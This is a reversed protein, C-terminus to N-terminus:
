TAEPTIPATALVPQPLQTAEGLALRRYLRALPGPAWWNVNGLLRMTAPVVLARVLTADIAVAIAMGIGIAKIIVVEALGFASFVGVMIAAAGTILRGSRELGEAVALTNDRGRLYEEQIRSLLLVEYDMSLGFVTCFMIVPLTPDIPAPTFGGLFEAFHGQQFIYVMAGFSTAISLLNMVVAKLPLVISGLLLFLVIYTAVMVWAVAAPTRGVIFEVVDIDFATLGTVFIEAGAPRALGRIGRVLAQADDSIKPEATLVSFVVIRQGVSQRLGVRLPEPLRDRGAGYLQQYDAAGLSTKGFARADLDFPSEVRLVDPLAAIRGSLDYLAAVRASSLPDGEAFRVVVTIQNKDFEPFESILLDYGRRSEAHKPLMTVDGNAMHIQLFPAATLLIFTMVPLLVLVPRRMVWTSLAHWFGGRQARAPFPVRWRDVRAGLISLLAPLFTLGYVVAFAVVIAGAQGMSSLFTGEYFLMGSLGIAVTLGSFTIARGATSMSRAVAEEVSAGRRLEERFRNVVFLSYDIAVGLGILTVVNLAYQSVDTFRTLMFTGAIGGVVALVGVGLPLLAAVVTGFVLLLLILALPLSVIEARLLDGELIQNFDHTIAINGSATVTLETSRIKSRLEVYYRQAESIEDQVSVIALARRGNSSILRAVPPTTDYPMGVDKVRPDKRVEALAAEMAAKFRPDTAQLTESAFIVSFSSGSARPLEERMLALARGSESTEIIGGSELTGGQAVVFISGGLLVSSALLTLWRWRYVIRGWAAFM